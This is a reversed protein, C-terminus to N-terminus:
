PQGSLWSRFDAISGCYATFIGSDDTCELGMRSLIARSGANDRHAYAKVCTVGGHICPLLHEYLRRFLRYKGQYGSRLQIEEMMFTVDNLYYQFFGVLEEAMYILVIRRQPRALGAGVSSYWQRYDDEASTGPFYQAMNEWLMAHLRPAYLPFDASDMHEFRIKGQVTHWAVFESKANTYGDRDHEFRKWLSLKLQEYEKAAAPDANMRDRFYVEDRDGAMRVHLHFVKEAFGEPTYGKNFSMRNGGRSMCTWGNRTLLAHVDEMPSGPRLELLMDVINKAWIGDIATSGVHSIAHVLSEPLCEALHAAEASYWDKWEPRPPTLYIPFLQWLEELTMESLPKSM